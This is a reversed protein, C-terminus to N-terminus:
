KLKSASLSFTESKETPSEVPFADCTSHMSIYEENNKYKLPDNLATTFSKSPGYARSIM